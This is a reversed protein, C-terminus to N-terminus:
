VTASDTAVYSGAHEETKCVLRVLVCPYVANRKPHIASPPHDPYIGVHRTCAFLHRHATIPHHVPAGHLARAAGTCDLAEPREERFQLVRFLYPYQKHLFRVSFELTAVLGDNAAVWSLCKRQKSTSRAAVSQQGILADARLM